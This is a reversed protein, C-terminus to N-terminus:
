PLIVIGMAEFPTNNKLNQWINQSSFVNVKEGEKLDEFGAKEEQLMGKESFAIKEITTKDGVLVEITEKDLSTVWENTIELIISGEKIEKILGTVGYVERPEEKLTKPLSTEKQAIKFFFVLLVVVGIILFGILIKFKLAM